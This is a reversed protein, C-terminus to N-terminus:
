GHSAEPGNKPLTVIFRSGREPQSEVEITGGLKETLRQCISLGLGTGEYARTLGSDIQQFPVFLKDIDDPAIGIGTDEVELTVTEAGSICRLTVGGESTFKVANSLLNTLIQKVRRRDSVIEGSATETELRLAIGKAEALPMATEVASRLLEDLDFPEPFVDLQGAEIKSIDLVDNILDLLHRASHKVMTMQKKQEDNLAGALGQLLIGTFGIISNLPTRLEHSMTALFASKMRDADEAQEKADALAKEVRKRDTIDVTMGVAAVIEGAVEVPAMRSLVTRVEGSTSPVDYEHRETAGSLVRKLEDNWRHKLADSIDLEDTRKGLADGIVGRSIPSQMIYRGDSDFAFFDVPMHEIITRLYAEREALSREARKRDSIDVHTGVVRIPVNDSSRRILTARSLVDVDSGNKHKMRFEAEYRESDGSLFTDEVNSVIAQDEPHILRRFTDISPALEDPRYGLMEAWRPSYYVHGSLLDWDWLGDNAGEMALAFREESRRLAEEARIRRVVQRRVMVIATSLAAIVALAAVAAPLMWPPWRFVTEPAQGALLNREIARYYASGPNAKMGSLTADIQEILTPTLAGNVPLAFRLEIPNFVIPTRVVDYEEAFVLGFVRNVVGADAMGDRLAAFVEDYSEREVIVADIGFRDLLDLIGGPDDTHTSGRMVAIRLGDLDILSIVDLDARAYVIGWNVLVTEENFAYLAKRPETYAVDVMLDIEGRELRALSETWSGPVYVIRWDNAEAIADVLEPYLGSVTGDSAVDVKPPNDYVGVRVTLQSVGSIPFWLCLAVVVASCIWPRHRLKGVRVSM